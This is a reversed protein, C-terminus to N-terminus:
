SPSRTSLDHNAPYEHRGAEAQIQDHGHNQMSPPSGTPTHSVYVMDFYAGLESITCFQLFDTKAKGWTHPALGLPSLGDENKKKLLSLAARHGLLLKIVSKNGSRCAQHLVNDGNRTALIDLEPRQLLMEVIALTAESPRLHSATQDAYGVALMLPTYEDHYRLNVNIHPSALLLQVIDHYEQISERIKCRQIAMTLASLGSKSCANVDSYPILLEVTATHGNHAAHMLPTLGDEDASGINMEKLGILAEVMAREATMAAHSVATRGKPDRFDFQVRSM